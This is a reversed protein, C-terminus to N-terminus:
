SKFIPWSENLGNEPLNAQLQLEEAWCQVAVVALLLGLAWVLSMMTHLLLHLLHNRYLVQRESCRSHLRQPVNEAKM